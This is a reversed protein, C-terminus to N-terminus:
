NAAIIASEIELKLHCVIIVINFFQRFFCVIKQSPQQKSTVQRLTYINCMDLYNLESSLQRRTFKHMIEDKKTM